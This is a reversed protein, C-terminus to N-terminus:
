KKEEYRRNKDVFSSSCFNNVKVNLSWRNIVHFFFWITEKIFCLLLLKNFKVPKWIVVYYFCQVKWIVADNLLGGRQTSLTCIFTFMTCVFSTKLCLILALKFSLFLFFFCGFVNHCVDSILSLMVKISDTFDGRNLIADMLETHM